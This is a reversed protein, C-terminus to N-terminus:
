DNGRLKEPKVATEVGREAGYREGIGDSETHVSHHAPVQPVVGDGVDGPVADHGAGDPGEDDTGDLHHLDLLLDPGAPAQGLHGGLDPLLRSQSAEASTEGGRQGPLKVSQSGPPRVQSRDSM